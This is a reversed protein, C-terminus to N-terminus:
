KRIVRVYDVMAQNIAINMNEDSPLYRLSLQHSGKTLHLTLANSFGWQNWANTGRQPLVWVGQPRGDVLVTRIACKNETNIPGNGNAYRCDILYEGDRGIRIPIDIRTNVTTSTEVFGEGSCGAYALPSRGAYKEAEYIAMASSDILAVPEGSFSSLGNPDVAQVAYESFAGGDGDIRLATDGTMRWPKGNKLVTYKVAGEVRPWSLFPPQWAAVPAAPSFVGPAENVMAAPLPDGALVIRIRHRGKMDAPIAATEMRKGDLYFGQITHGYGTMDIDLLSGRYAFNTLSRDGRFSKPVFPEFALGDANFRIGFLVKYVISLNGSLSWLMNSSNIQTGAYDGTSAVFNEKNTLWMAAPRYVDCISEMVSRENDARAGAWLWFTQVFPWVANNHYPPIGPIQPYICPIGFANVPVRSMMQAAKERDAIGFVISLAEGLAESRPSQMRNIRGYLYQAYYGKEPMWLWKNMAARIAAAHDLYGAAEKQRGLLVAMKSMVLNAEYHVANTGLNESAFIDAPQMWGPYTQERWDLFSSEGRVLGTSGDYIVDYDAALSRRIIAYAQRLWAKDGTVKYLEWAAVAWIMRDSSVPWAGGTGTDQIIKGHKDVKKLLSYRAVRPQLYAMSLLISYSIDRTWVGAWEKGTRFTSDPEVARIMEELSLNYLADAMPYPSVYQPFASIDKTLIWHDTTGQRPHDTATERALTASQYDSRIEKRSLAHALFKGQVISDAYVAFAANRFLPKQQWAKCLGASLLLLIMCYM